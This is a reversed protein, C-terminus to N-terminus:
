FYLKFNQILCKDLEEFDINVGEHRISTVLSNKIGCPKIQQFNELNPNLNISIGHWTIWSSLRIGISAIKLYDNKRKIWVGPYKDRIYTKISFNNLTFAIWNELSNVFKKIDRERKNLNLMIYVVRQGPGHWTWQGGRGTHRILDKNIINQDENKASTGATYIPQHELFWLLEDFNKKKMKQLHTKMYDLAYDYHIPKNSVKIIIKQNSKMKNKIIIVRLVTYCIIVFVLTAATASYTSACRQPRQPIIDRPLELRRLRM